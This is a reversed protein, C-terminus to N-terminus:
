EPQLKERYLITKKFSGCCFVKHFNWKEGYYIEDIIINKIEDPDGSIYVGLQEHTVTPNESQILCQVEFINEGNYKIPKENISLNAKTWAKTWNTVNNNYFKQQFVVQNNPTINKINIRLYHCKKNYEWHPIKDIDTYIYVSGKKEDININWNDDIKKAFNNRNFPNGFNINYNNEKGPYDWTNNLVKVPAIIEKDYDYKFEYNQYLKWLCGGLALLLAGAASGYVEYLTLYNTM